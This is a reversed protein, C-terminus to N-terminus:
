IPFACNFLGLLFLGPVGTTRKVITRGAQKLLLLGRPRTHFIIDTNIKFFYSTIIHVPNLQSQVFDPLSVKHVHHSSELQM